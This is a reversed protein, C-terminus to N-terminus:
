KLLEVLASTDWRGKGQTQLKEYFTDVLHTVPLPTGMRKAEAFCMGLDKRMWNLAFGKNDHFDSEIMQAHRNVMQWSGAAGTELTEFVQHADLGAKLAFNVGEALAQVLGAICIQNVMKCLQGHGAAGLHRIKTGYAQMFPETIHFDDVEGGCMITLQGKQAGAQGGSVPADIFGIGREKAAKFLTRAMDASATTHDVLISGAKMHALAGLRPDLAVEKVSEDNGLCMMVISADSVAQAPTLAIHGKHTKLWDHAKEMTRNWVTVEHDQTVLHGAMPFGMVGLGLFAIKAMIRIGKM